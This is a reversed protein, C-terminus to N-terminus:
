KKKKQKQQGVRVKSKSKEEKQLHSALPCDGLKWNKEPNIYSKCLDQSTPAVGEEVDIKNCGICKEIIPTRMEKLRKQMSKFQTNEGVGIRGM